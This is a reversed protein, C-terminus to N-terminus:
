CRGIHRGVVHDHKMNDVLENFDELKSEMVHGFIKNGLSFEVGNRLKTKDLKSWERLHSVGQRWLGNTTLPSERTGSRDRCNM